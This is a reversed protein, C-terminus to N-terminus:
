RTKSELLHSLGASVGSGTMAVALFPVGACSAALAALSGGAIGILPTVWSDKDHKLTPTVAPLTAGAIMSCVLMGGPLGNMLFGLAATAAANTLAYMSPSFLGRNARPDPRHAKLVKKMVKPDIGETANSGLTVIDLPQGSVLKECPRAAKQTLSNTKSTIQM